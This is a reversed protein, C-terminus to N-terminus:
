KLVLASSLKPNLSLNAAAKEGSLNPTQVEWREEEETTQIHSLIDQPLRFDEPSFINVLFVSVIGQYNELFDQIQEASPGSLLLFLCM